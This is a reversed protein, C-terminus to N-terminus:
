GPEPDTGTIAQFQAQTWAPPAIGRNQLRYLPFRM